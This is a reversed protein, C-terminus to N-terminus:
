ASAIKISKEMEALKLAILQSLETLRDRVAKDQYALDLVERQLPRIADVARQFPDLYTSKRSLLYGRQATQAELVTKELQLLKERLIFGQGIGAQSETFWRSSFESVALIAVSVVAAIVLPLWLRAPLLAHGKPPRTESTSSAM